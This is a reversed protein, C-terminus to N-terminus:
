YGVRTNFVLGPYHLKLIYVAVFAVFMLLPRLVAVAICFDDCIFKFKSTPHWRSYRNNVKERESNRCLRNQCRDGPCKSCPRGPKYPQIGVEMSPGYNCVFTASNRRGDQSQRCRIVACGVKYTNAWVVQLYHRCIMECTNSSYNYYIVEDHFVSIPIAPDFPKSRAPTRYMNEGFPRFAYEPHINNVPNYEFICKKGWERAIKALALDFTMYLMNSATPQVKTRFNNHADVYQRIFNQNTIQPYPQFNKKVPEEEPVVLGLVLWPWLRRM